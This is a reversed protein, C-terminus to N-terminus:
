FSGVGMGVKKIEKKKEVKAAAAKQASKRTEAAKTATKKPAANGKPKATAVRVTCVVKSEAQLNSYLAPTPDLTDPVRKKALFYSTLANRSGRGWDGDVRMQYCGLRKLEGQVSAALQEPALVALEAPAPPDLLAPDIAGLVSQGEPDGSDVPRGEIRTRDIDLPNVTAARTETPLAALRIPARDPNPVDEAPPPAAPEARDPEPPAPAPAPEPPATPASSITVGEIVDFPAPAPPAGINTGTQPLVELNAAAFEIEAEAEARAAQSLGLLDFFKARDAPDFQSLLEYDAPSLEQRKEEAPVFYFQSRLSSQDWPTQKRLTNEEVENRVEIMMDSVSIGPTAIHNLLAKTFPSNKTGEGGDYTVAGPETAFAVFTGVGTNLRALGDAAGGDGRVSQPLPDNRCADLFILTQRNRAQLRAIVNDLSWTESQISERSSLQASVPVLYNVGSMQFAHGSYFFVTSEATEADKAFLDLKQWFDASAIDTLLTVEFGLREMAAAVDRSDNVANDLKPVTTYAANGVVLALRRAEAPSVAWLAIALGCLCLRVLATVSQSGFGPTM